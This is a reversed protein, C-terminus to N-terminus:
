ADTIVYLTTADPTLADYAAQTLAVIDRIDASSVFTASLAARTDSGDDEVLAAIAPDSAGVGLETPDVPVYANDVDSYALVYGDAPEATPTAGASSGYRTVGTEANGGGYVAWRADPPSALTPTSLTGDLIAGTGSVSFGLTPYDAAPGTYIFKTM